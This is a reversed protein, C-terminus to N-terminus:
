KKSPLTICIHETEIIVFDDDRSVTLETELSGKTKSAERLLPLNAVARNLAYNNKKKRPM